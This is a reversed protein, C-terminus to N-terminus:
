PVIGKVVCFGKPQLVGVDMRLHALFAYELTEAFRERLVEIRLDSRVGLILKSFDGVVISSANSATGQTQNTPVITSVLRPVDAVARPANLPQGTTDTLGNLVRSTRPSMVMASPTGANAAELEYLADLLPAHNTIAAGNTGLSVVSVNATNFVGRPEPAVGSGFLCVRDVEVAMAGAFAQLLMQDINVSDDLLERSIKVLCALSRSQFTVAGFTPDSTAVAGLELRWGAQPDSEVRAIVTKDTNLLITGAGAQVVVTKARMADVFQRLLHDPVSYGGASDTGESLANRVAPVNTGAVMASVYQGFGFRADAGTSMSASALRDGKGFVQVASGERDSWTKDGASLSGLHSEAIDMNDISINDFEIMAEIAKLLGVDEDYRSRSEKGSISKDDVAARARDRVTNAIRRLDARHAVFDGKTNCRKDMDFGLKAFEARLELEKSAIIERQAYLTREVQSM